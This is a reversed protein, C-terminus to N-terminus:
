SAARLLPSRSAEANPQDRPRFDESQPPADDLHRVIRAPVGAVLTDAPVDRTVVAGAAVVAGKGITVGPLVISRSALWAGEGIHIPRARTAACREQSPGIEHDVTLLMVHHGLHVRDDIRVSAELDIHVPGSFFVDSGLRLHDQWRARGTVHLPGMIRVRAGTRLGAARWIVTRLYNFGFHPLLGTTAEALVRSPQVSLVDDRFVRTVDAPLRRARALYQSFTPKV